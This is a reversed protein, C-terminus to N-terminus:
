RTRVQHSESRETIKAEFWECGIAEFSNEESLMQQAKKQRRLESPDVGNELQKRATDRKNRAEKLTTEPYVGLALRKEKGGFRYKLRWYKRGKTNVELYMEREDSIKYNKEKSKAQKVQTNTLAM